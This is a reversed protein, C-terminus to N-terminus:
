IDTRRAWFARFCLHRHWAGDVLEEIRGGIARSRDLLRTPTPRNVWQGELVADGQILLRKDFRRSDVARLSFVYWPAASAVRVKSHDTISVLIIAAWLYDVDDDTSYDLNCIHTGEWYLTGDINWPSDKLYGDMIVSFQTLADQGNSESSAVNAASGAYQWYQHVADRKRLDDSLSRPQKKSFNDLGSMGLYTVFAQGCLGTTQQGGFSASLVNDPTGSTMAPLAASSQVALYSTGSIKWPCNQLYGELAQRFAFIGPTDADSLLAVQAAATVYTQYQEHPTLADFDKSNILRKARKLGSETTPSKGPNSV